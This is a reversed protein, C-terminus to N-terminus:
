GAGPTPQHRPGFLARGVRVMTSGEAVAADLDATMGMSCVSLGHDDVLRRLTAFAPRPDLDTDTPGVTMLGEVVLGGTAAREILAGVGEPPCGAKQPEATTNVQLLLRAGPARRVLEDVVEARDVSQFRHVVPALLRVKNRQLHGIFQWHPSGGAATVEAAKAVLEQAYNEGVDVLGAELAALVAAAGFTKTVAIVVVDAPSVGVAIMRQRLGALREAVLAADM